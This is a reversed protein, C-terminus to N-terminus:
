DNAAERALSALWKKVQDLLADLQNQDIAPHSQYPASCLIDITQPSLPNGSALGNLQEYWQRGVTGAVENRPLYSIGIRCLLISVDQLLQQKNQHEAYADILVNLEVKASKKIVPRTLKKIGRYAVYCIILVLMLAIWWGIAPPWWSVPDPLHIDKLPLQASPNM